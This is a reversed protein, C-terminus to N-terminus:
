IPVGLFERFFGIVGVFITKQIHSECGQFYSKVRPDLVQNQNESDLYFIAM